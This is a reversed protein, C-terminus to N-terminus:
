RDPHFGAILNGRQVQDAVWAFDHGPVVLLRPAEHKLRLITLLWGFVAHRDEKDYWISVLRSRARMQSWNADITVTDGTFLYERGNALTVFIMEAGPSQGPAPITVVGPAVAHPEEDASAPVPHAGAPWALGIHALPPLQRPSLRAHGIVAAGGPQGAVDVLGGLHEPLESTALILGAEGLAADIRRQADRNYHEFNVSAAQAATMGSDIVLPRRGAVPL